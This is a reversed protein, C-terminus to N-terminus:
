AELRSSTSCARQKLTKLPMKVPYRAYFSRYYLPSEEVAEISASFTAMGETLRELLPELEELTRPMDEVLTLHPQFVPSGFRKALRRIIAAFTEEDELRPMLWISHYEATMQRM